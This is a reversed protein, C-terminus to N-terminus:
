KDMLSMINLHWRCCHEKESLRKVKDGKQM